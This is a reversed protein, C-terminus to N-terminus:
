GNEVEKGVLDKDFPFIDKDSAVTRDIFVHEKTESNWYGYLEPIWRIIYQGNLNRCPSQVMVKDFPEFHKHKWPAKFTSWDRSDKSPFLVCPCQDCRCLRGFPDTGFECFIRKKTSVFECKICYDESCDYQHDLEASTDSYRVHILRVEEFMPSWLKTGKPADKLIEAININENM